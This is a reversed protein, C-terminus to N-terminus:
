NICQILHFSILDKFSSYICQYVCCYYFLTELGAIYKNHITCSCQSISTHKHNHFELKTTLINKLTVWHDKNVNVIVYKFKKEWKM